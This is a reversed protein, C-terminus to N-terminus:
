VLRIPLTIKKGTRTNINIHNVFGIRREYTLSILLDLRGPLNLPYVTYLIVLYYVLCFHYIPVNYVTFMKKDGDIHHKVSLCM